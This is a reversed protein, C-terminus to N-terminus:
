SGKDSSIKKLYEFVFPDIMEKVAEYDDLHQRIETSSIDILPINLIQYNEKHYKNAFLEKLEEQQLEDRRIVIFPNELLEESNVWRGFNVINDAGIVLYFEDQPNEEKLTRFLQYTKEINNHTTDVILRQNEYFQWMAIRDEIPLLDQKNWYNGTVVVWLEDVLNQDIITQAIKVHGKHVPNFSGCYVGIKM